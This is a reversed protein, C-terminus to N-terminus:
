WVKEAGLLAEGTRRRCPARTMKTRLCVECSRDSNKISHKRSRSVVKTPPESDSDQSSHVSAPLETDELNDTFEELCEPLDRLRDDSDRSDDKKKNQTKSPNCSKGPAVGDSRESVPSSSSSSSDHPPSTIVRSCCFTRLQGKQM